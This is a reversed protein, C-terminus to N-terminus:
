NTRAIIKKVSTFDSASPYWIPSTCGAAERYLDNHMVSESCHGWYQPDMLGLIHGTEHNIFKRARTIDGNVHELKLYSYVWKFHQHDGTPDNEPADFVVCSYISGGCEATWSERVHYEIEITSREAQAYQSCQLPKRWIDVNWDGTGDWIQNFALQTLTEQLRNSLTTASAATTHMQLCWEEDQSGPATSTGNNAHMTSIHKQEWGNHSHSAYAVPVHRWAVVAAVALWAAFIWRPTPPVAPPISM